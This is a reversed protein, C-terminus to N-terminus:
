RFWIRATFHVGERGVRVGLNNESCEEHYRQQKTFVITKGISLYTSKFSMGLWVLYGPLTTFFHTHALSFIYVHM